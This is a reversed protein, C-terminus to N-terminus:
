ALLWFFLQIKQKVCVWVGVGGWRGVCKVYMRERKLAKALVQNENWRWLVMLCILLHLSLVRVALESCHKSPSTASASATLLSLEGVAWWMKSQTCANLTTATDMTNPFFVEAAEGQAALSLSATTGGRCLQLRTDLGVTGATIPYGKAELGARGGQIEHNPSAQIRGGCDLAQNTPKCSGCTPRPSCALLRCNLDM